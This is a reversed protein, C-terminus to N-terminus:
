PPSLPNQLLQLVRAQVSWMNDKEEDNGHDYGLLHLIGHVILLQLEDKVEHGGTQAQELARPYSVIIDGLYPINTDPDTFSAPFALVDTPADNDLYQRNFVQIQDDDTILISLDAESSSTEQLVLWLIQKVQNGDIMEAPFVDAVTEAVLLM